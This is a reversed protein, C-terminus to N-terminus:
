PNFLAIYLSSTLLKVKIKASADFFFQILLNSVIFVSILETSLGLIKQTGCKPLKRLFRINNLLTKLLCTIYDFHYISTAVLAQPDSFVILNWGMMETCAALCGQGQNYSLGRSEGTEVNKEEIVDEMRAGSDRASLLRVCGSM